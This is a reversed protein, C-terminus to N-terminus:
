RGPGTTAPPRGQRDLLSRWLSPAAFAQLRCVARSLLGRLGVPRRLGFPDTAAAGAERWAVVATADDPGGAAGVLAMLREVAGTAGGYEPAATRALAKGAVVNTVGDTCLLLGNEPGLPRTEADLQCGGPHGLFRTIVHRMAGTPPVLGASADAELTHDVTLAEAVGHTLLYARSDGAHVVALHDPGAAVATLTTAAGRAEPREDALRRVAADAARAAELLADLTTGADTATTPRRSQWTATLAAVAAASAEEGAAEGGVGDAVALLILGAEGAPVIAWADENLVRRSGTRSAAAAQWGGGPPASVVTIEKAVGAL